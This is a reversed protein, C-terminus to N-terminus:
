QQSQTSTSWACLQLKALAHHSPQRLIIAARMTSQINVIQTTDLQCRDVHLKNIRKHRGVAPYLM